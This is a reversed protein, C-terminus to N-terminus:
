KDGFLRIITEAGDITRSPDVDTGVLTWEHNILIGKYSYYQKGQYKRVEDYFLKNGILQFDINAIYTGYKNNEDKEIDFNVLQIDTIGNISKKFIWNSVVEKLDNKIHQQIKSKIIDDRIVICQSFGPVQREDFGKIKGSNIFFDIMLKPTIYYREKTITKSTCTCYSSMEYDNKKICDSYIEPELAYRFCIETWLIWAIIICIIFKM